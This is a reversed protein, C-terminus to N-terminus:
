MGAPCTSGSTSHGDAEPVVTQPDRGARPYIPAEVVGNLRSLTAVSWTQARSTNVAAKRADVIRRSTCASLRAGSLPLLRSFCREFPPIIDNM